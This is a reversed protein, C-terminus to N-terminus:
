AQHPFESLHFDVLFVNFLVHAYGITMELWLSVSVVRALRAWRVAIHPATAIM